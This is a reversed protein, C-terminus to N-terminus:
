EYTHIDLIECCHPIGNVPEVGDYTHGKRFINSSNWQGICHDNVHDSNWQCICHDNVHDSNWQGVCYDNVHDIHHPITTQKTLMPQITSKFFDSDKWLIYNPM